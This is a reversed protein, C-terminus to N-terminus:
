GVISIANKPCGRVAQEMLPRQDEPPEEVLVTLYEDDSLQFVHPALEM